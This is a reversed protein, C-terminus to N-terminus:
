LSVRSSSSTQKTYEEYLQPMKDKIIVVFKKLFYSESCSIFTYFGIDTELLNKEKLAHIVATRPVIRKEMSYSLLAPHSVLFDSGYGLEEMFYNLKVMVLKESLNLVSPHKRLLTSIETESWGYSRFVQLRSEFKAENVKNWACIGQVFMPSTRPIGLKEEVTKLNKEFWQSRQVMVHPKQLTLQKMQATSLGYSQLLLLNQPVNKSWNFSLFRSCKTKLLFSIFQEDSGIISKLTLLSPIIHAKLSYRLLCFHQSIILGLDPGHFGLEQFARFKPALTKDIKVRLISPVFSILRKIHTEDFGSRKLFNVVMDPQKTTCKSLYSVKSIISAAEEESFGVSKTLFEHMPPPETIGGKISASTSYLISSKFHHFCTFTGHFGNFARKLMSSSKQKMYDEYLQPMKDKFKVVFKKLFYSESYCIFTYLSIDNELLNNEKLARIVATRPVIRKETSYSLLDPHSALVDSGYGLEEMFYKLKVMISKESLNLVLPHKRLLTSIETESWGYSGFVQLRSEFKVENIKNCATIGHVFMLATRTIRLKEEVTKLNEEVLIKSLNNSLFKSSKTKLLFSILQEDSGIISKLTVLSPFIHAKLSYKLLSSHQSIILGLDPGHLGLEQLARFKPALTKDIKVRLVSPVFSILRKIHTEDFGSRKLFDVVMKSVISAAEEESFGVSKTLFEHMPPPETIGDKFSASTSYLISSKFHHFCIFTGHFGNFARKLMRPGGEVSARRVSKRRERDFEYEDLLLSSCGLPMSQSYGNLSTQHTLVIGNLSPFRMMQKGMIVAGPEQLPYRCSYKIEQIIRLQEAVSRMTPRDSPDKQLCKQAIQAVNTAAKIPFRGKLQPDMILSLRCEDALFARTWKMLNREEKPRRSDMNKRGTLLELLIIGFSYVNSKPTLLGREMTEVSLNGSAALADSINAEQLLGVCGYGSLKASFDKDIQINATSFEKYMAQFPGEEHLFTLGQAACLAVKMRSSWDVPPGDSRGYLLLDLSGHHLREYVLIRQETDERAHYGLLKCLNPHQLTALTNAENVFEKLGQTLPYFRTVTAELKRMSFSVDWISAKYVSSSLSESTCHDPSFNCCASAIEEYRFSKLSGSPPLPLQGSSYSSRRASRTKVSGMSKLGPAIQPEPLPLPQPTPSRPEDFEASSSMADRNFGHLSSPASLTRAKSSLVNKSSQSPISRTQFSPPASQLANSIIQTRKKRSRMVTFCGMAILRQM